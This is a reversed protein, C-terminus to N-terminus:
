SLQPSFYNPSICIVEILILAAALETGRDSIEDTIVFWVTLSCLIKVLIKLLRSLM